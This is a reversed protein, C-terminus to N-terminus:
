SVAHRVADIVRDQAYSDLYPHMPLSLVEGALSDSVILQDDARPFDKYARQRHVPTAYYVATPIGHAALHQVIEERRSSRVTYQAWVSMVDDPCRPVRVVNDLGSRYREAIRNRAALEDDFITLKQLLIAAQITDIRGNIGIRAYDRQGRDLGHVSLSRIKDALEADQTFVAGADGYCGLPKAPYFSTATIEALTGVRQGHYTAGFSQAGDAIIHAGCAAAVKRLTAYDAPLGFLDVPVIAAPRLGAAEARVIGRELSEADINFDMDLVDVFVPTAGVLAVAEASAVFTFSPVFVADGPGIDLAMLALVLADTGSSCLICHDIGASDMLRRELEAVEPGLIFQGHDVVRQIAAEIQGNLRRKQAQLDIFPMPATRLPSIDNM